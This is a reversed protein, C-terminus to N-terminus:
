RELEMTAGRVRLRVTGDVDTRVVDPVVSLAALTSRAPHGYSNGRGVEIAAVQPRLRTLVDPLGPDESGHHPVKLAEVPALDLRRLVDSEADAPLLLDFGGHRVHTVLATQNPDQTTDPREVPPPWLTKLTMGDLTVAQGGHAAIVRAAPPTGNDELARQVATPWGHGGNLVLRPRLRAIVAGAAGEHDAQAHTLVLADLREVGAETLRELVPGDPPGTDFLVSVRRTQLLTADGQGVDLFSVLLEGDGITPAGAREERVSWAILAVVAGGAVLPSRPWRRLIAAVRGEGPFGSDRVTPSWRRRLLVLAVAASAAGASSIIADVASVAVAAHPITAFWHAVWEIYAVLHGNLWTLPLALRPDIQALGAALMGLWMVPAVAPAAVLNAPLSVLSLEGFHLILLPATAVTAVSTIATGEAIPRPLGRSTLARTAPAAASLLGLVASFSLQWAPDRAALPNVALTIAAALLLAYWRDAPRGALAAVLGAAGMVGARQISPGGGALPVYAIVLALAFALRMRLSAGVATAVTIALVALLMVNQGSVALLHALGSRRFDARVGDSIADDEGLVMGRLLAAQDAGTGAGLGDRSRDRAADLLGILGTRRHGVPNWATVVLAAQAGRLRQYAEWGALAEVRGSVQLLSGPVIGTASPAPRERGATATPSSPQELHVVAVDGRASGDLWRARFSVGGARRRRPPELAVVRGALERGTSDALVSEQLDRTREHGWAAGALMAAVALTAVRRSPTLLSAAAAILGVLWPSAGSSLLGIALAALVLHRPHARALSLADAFRRELALSM